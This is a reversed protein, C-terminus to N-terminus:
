VFCRPVSRLRMGILNQLRWNTKDRMESKPLFSVPRTACVAGPGRVLALRLAADVLREDVQFNVMSAECAISTPAASTDQSRKTMVTSVMFYFM